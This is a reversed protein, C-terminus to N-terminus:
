VGSGGQRWGLGSGSSPSGYTASRRGEAFRGELAAPDFTEGSVSSERYSLVGGRPAIFSPPGGLEPLEVGVRRAFGGEM